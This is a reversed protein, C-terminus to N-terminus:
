SAPTSSQLKGAAKSSGRVDPSFLTFDNFCFWFVLVYFFFNKKPRGSNVRVLKTGLEKNYNVAAYNIVLVKVQM